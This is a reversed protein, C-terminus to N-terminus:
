AAGPVPVARDQFAFGNNHAAQQFSNASSNFEMISSTDLQGSKLKEGMVQARATLESLPAVLNHLLASNGTSAIYYAAMLRNYAFLGAIGAKLLNAKHHMNLEHAEYRNWIFHHFAYYAVGLDTVFRTKDLFAPPAAVHDAPAAAVLTQAHGSAPAVAGGLALAALLGAVILVRAIGNM